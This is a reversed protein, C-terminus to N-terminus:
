TWDVEVCSWLSLLILCGTREAMCLSVYCRFSLRLQQKDEFDTDDASQEAKNAM